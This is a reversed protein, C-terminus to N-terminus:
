ANEFFLKTTKKNKRKKASFLFAFVYYNQASVFMVDVFTVCQEDTSNKPVSQLVPNRWDKERQTLLLVIVVLQLFAHVREM